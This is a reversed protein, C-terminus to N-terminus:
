KKFRLRLAKLAENDRQSKFRKYVKNTVSVSRHAAMKQAADFGTGSKINTFNQRAMGIEACFESANKIRREFVLLEVLRLIRQDIENM